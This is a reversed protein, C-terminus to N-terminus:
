SSDTPPTGSSTRSSRRSRNQPPVVFPNLGRGRWALSRSEATYELFPLLQIAALAVGLLAGGALSVVARLRRSSRWAALAAWAAVLLLLKFSTEPHGAALSGGVLAAVLVTARPGGTAAAREVSWLLWPLWVAASSHPHELWVVVFPNLLFASGAFLAAPWALGLRRVFLFMGLGGFLLKAAAAPVLGYPLPIILALWTFPSFMASQYAGIFPHGTFIGPNWLPLHWAALSERAFM